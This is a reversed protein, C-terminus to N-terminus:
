LTYENCIHEFLRKGCEYFRPHHHFYGNHMDSLSMKVSLIMLKLKTMENNGLGYGQFLAEKLDPKGYTYREVVVGFSDLPLGWLMSEFDIFGTFRGNEDVMWNNQSFDWNTPVPRDEAFVTSNNMCWDVLAKHLAGFLGKDYGAKFIRELSGCIYDVPSDTASLDYPSGDANPIGFFSGTKGEQQQKFLRGAEFYIERLKESDEMGMENVTKGTVPTTVIGFVNDQNFDAVLKPVMGQINSTWNRYAYVEPNWHSLRNHLKVFYREGGATVEIVGTRDNDRRHDRIIEFTGILSSILAKTQESFIM